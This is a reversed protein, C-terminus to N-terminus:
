QHEKEPGNGKDGASKSDNNKFFKKHKSPGGSNGGGDRNGPLDGKQGSASKKDQGGDSSQPTTKKFKPKKKTPPKNNDNSSPKAYTKAVLEATARRKAVDELTLIANDQPETTTLEMQRLYIDKRMVSLKSADNSALIRLTNLFALTKQGLETDVDDSDVIDDAFTDYMRTANAIFGQAKVLDIEHKRASEPLVLVQHEMVPPPKYVMGDTYHFDSWDFHGHGAPLVTNFFNTQTVAPYQEQLAPYRLLTTARESKYVVKGPRLDSDASAIRLEEITHQQADLKRSLSDIKALLVAPDFSAPPNTADSM